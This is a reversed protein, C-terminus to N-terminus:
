RRGVQGQRLTIGDSPTRQLPLNPLPAFSLAVFTCFGESPHLHKVQNMSAAERLANGSISPRLLAFRHM